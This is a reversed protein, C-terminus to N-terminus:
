SVYLLLALYTLGGIISNLLSTRRCQLFCLKLPFWFILYNMIMVHAKCICSLPDRCGSISYLYSRGHHITICIYINWQILFYISLWIDFCCVMWTYFLHSSYIINSIGLFVWCFLLYLEIRIIPLELYLYLNSTLVQM